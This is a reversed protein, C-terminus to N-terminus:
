WKLSSGHLCFTLNLPWILNEYGEFAEEPFVTEFIAEKFYISWELVIKFGTPLCANLKFTQINTLPFLSAILTQAIKRQTKPPFSSTFKMKFLVSFHCLTFVPPFWTVVVMFVGRWDSAGKLFRLVQEIRTMGTEEPCFFILCHRMFAM